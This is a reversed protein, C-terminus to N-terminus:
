KKGFIRHLLGTRRRGKLPPILNIEGPFVKGSAAYIMELQETRYATGDRRDFAAAIERAQSDFWQTLLKISYVGDERYLPFEVPYAACVGLEPPFRTLIQWAGAYFEMQMDKGSRKLYQPLHQELLHLGQLQSLRAMVALALGIMDPGIGQELLQKGLLPEGNMVAGRLLFSRIGNHKEKEPTMKDLLSLALDRGKEWEGTAIMYRALEAERTSYDELLGDDEVMWNFCHREAWDFRGCSLYYLCQSQEYAATGFGYQNLRRLFQGAMQERRDSPLDPTHRWLDLGMYIAYCHSWGPKYGLSCPRAEQMSIFETIWPFARVPDGGYFNLELIMEFRLKMRWYYDADCGARRIAEELCRARQGNKHPLKEAEALVAAGDFREM